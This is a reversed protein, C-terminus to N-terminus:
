RPWTASVINSRENARVAPGSMAPPISTVYFWITEGATPYYSSVPEGKGQIFPPQDAHNEMTTCRDLVTETIRWESPASWYQGKVKIIIWLLGFTLHKPEEAGWNSPRTLKWCITPITPNSISTIKFNTSIKKYEKASGAIGTFSVDSMPIADSGSAAPTPSNGNGSKKSSNSRGGGFLSSFFNKVGDFLSAAAAKGQLQSGGANTSSPFLESAGAEPATTAAADAAKAPAAAKDASGSTRPPTAARNLTSSTNTTNTLANTSKLGSPPNESNSPTTNSAVNQGQLGQAEVLTARSAVLRPSAGDRLEEIQLWLVQYFAVDDLTNVDGLKKKLRKDEDIILDKEEAWKENGQTQADWLSFRLSYGGPALTTSKSYPLKLNEALAGLSLALTLTSVAVLFLTWKKM